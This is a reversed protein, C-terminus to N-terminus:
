IPNYYQFSDQFLPLHSFTFYILKSWSLSWLWEKWLTAISSVPQMFPLFSKIEQEVFVSQIELLSNTGHISNTLQRIWCSSKEHVISVHFLVWGNCLRGRLRWLPMGQFPYLCDNVRLHPLLHSQINVKCSRHSYGWFFSMIQWVTRPVSGTQVNRLLLLDKKKGVLYRVVTGRFDM